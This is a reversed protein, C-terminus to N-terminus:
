TSFVRHCSNPSPTTSLRVMKTAMSQRRVAGVALSSSDTEELFPKKINPLNIPISDSLDDEPQQLLFSYRRFFYLIRRKSTFPYQM